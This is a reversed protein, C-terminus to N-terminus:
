SPYGHDPANFSGSSVGNFTQLQHIHCSQGTPDCHHLLINWTLSSSPLTGDQPDTASGSFSILDGVKWTLSSPPTAITPTPANASTYTGYLSYHINSLIPAGFPNSPGMSYTNLNYRLEGLVSDYRLQTLYTPTGAISGM